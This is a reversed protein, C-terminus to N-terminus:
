GKRARSSLFAGTIAFLAGVITAMTVVGLDFVALLGMAVLPTLFALSSITAASGERTAKDWLVNAVTFPGIGMLIIAIWQEVTPWFVPELIFHAVLASIGALGLSPGVVNAEVKAFSRGVSYVAFTLAGCAGLLVGTLDLSGGMQPSLAVAVGIFGCAIGLMQLPSPQRRHLIAALTVLFVPWLYHVVNAEAPGIRAIAALYFANNGMLGAAVFVLTKIPVAAFARTAGQRVALGFSFLFGILAAAGLVLLPPAPNVTTALAPWSAWLVVAGAVLTYTRVNPGGALGSRIWADLRDILRHHAKGSVM